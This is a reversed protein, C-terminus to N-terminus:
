WLLWLLVAAAGVYWFWRGNSGSRPPVTGSRRTTNLNAARQFAERFRSRAAGHLAPDRVLQQEFAQQEEPPLSGDLYPEIMDHYNM